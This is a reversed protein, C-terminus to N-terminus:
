HRALWIMGIILLVFVRPGGYTFGVISLWPHKRGFWLPFPSEVGLGLLHMLVLPLIFKFFLVMLLISSVILLPYKVLYLM